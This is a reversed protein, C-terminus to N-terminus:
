PDRGGTRGSASITITVTGAAGDYTSALVKLSSTPQGGLWTGSSSFRAGHRPCIFGGSQISVTAGQHPCSMSLAVYTAPGTRVLAVPTSTNGDVRAFGGVAALAPVGALTVVLQTGNAVPTAPTTAAPAAVALNGTPADYVVPYSTLNATAQGGTWTGNAAFRAGHNPCLFGSGSVNVTTGQHPCVLSLAVFAAAGTRVLALPAGSPDAVKAIGGVNALAPYDALRFSLGGTPIVSSSPSVPDWVGTGCAEALLATVAALTSQSLFTRRDIGCGACPGDDAHRM